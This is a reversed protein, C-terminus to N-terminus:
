LTIQSYHAAFFGITTGPAECKQPLCVVLQEMRGKWGKGDSVTLVVRYNGSLTYHAEANREDSSEGNGFDWQYAFTGNSDLPHNGYAQVVKEDASLTDPPLVIGVRESGKPVRELKYGWDAAFVRWKIKATGFINTYVYVNGESVLGGNGRTDYWTLVYPNGNALDNVRFHTGAPLERPTDISKDDGTKSNILTTKGNRDKCDRSVNGWWYSANHVWGMCMTRRPDDTTMYFTEIDVNSTRRADEWHGPLVFHNQEFNVDKFFMALAPFNAERYANSSWRWWYLGSGSTGMFSTAWISNHFTIDDCADMDNPDGELSGFGTEDIFAPKDPYMAHIGKQFPTTSNIEDWRRLNDNRETFYCHRPCVVDIFPSDFVTKGYDR